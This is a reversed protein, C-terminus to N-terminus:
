VEASETESEKESGRKGFREIIKGFIKGNTLVKKSFVKIKKMRM